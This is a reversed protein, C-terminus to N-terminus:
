RETNKYYKEPRHKMKMVKRALTFLYDSLRNIYQMTIPNQPFMDNCEVLLRECRRAQTRCVHLLTATRSSSPIIFGKLAPLEVTMVDIKHELYQVDLPSIHCVNARLHEDECAIESEIEFLKNQIVYLESAEDSSSLFTAAFGLLSVLQDIEGYTQVRIDNKKVRTGGVLSTMGEDGKKTYIM